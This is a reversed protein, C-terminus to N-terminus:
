VLDFTSQFTSHCHMRVVPKGSPGPILLHLLCKARPPIFARRQCVQYEWDRSVNSVLVLRLLLELLLGNKKKEWMCYCLKPIGHLVLALQLSCLRCVSGTLIGRPGSSLTQTHQQTCWEAMDSFLFVPWDVELQLSHDKQLKETSEQHELRSKEM